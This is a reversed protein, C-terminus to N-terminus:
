LNIIEKYASIMHRRYIFIQVLSLSLMGIVLAIVSYNYRMFTLDMVLIGIWVPLSTLAAILFFRNHFFACGIVIETGGVFSRFPEHDALYWSLTMLDTQAITQMLVDDPVGFQIRLIKIAGYFIMTVGVIIRLFLILLGRFHINM